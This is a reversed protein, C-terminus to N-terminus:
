GGIGFPTLSRKIDDIIDSAEELGICLRISDNSNVVAALTNDQGFSFANDIVQLSEVFQKHQLRTGFTFDIMGSRVDSGKINVRKKLYALVTDTNSKIKELRLPLTAIGRRILYANLPQIGYGYLAVEDDLRVDCLLAGGLSDGHGGAYKSLSEIVFDAGCDFPNSYYSTLMTNDVLVKCGAEKAKSCINAIDYPKCEPNSLVDVVVLANASFNCDKGLDAYEANYKSLLRRSEEHIYKDAIIQKQNASLVLNLCAMANNLCYCYAAKHSYLDLMTAELEDRNPNNYRTYVFGEKVDFANDLWIARSHRVCKTAYKMLLINRYM